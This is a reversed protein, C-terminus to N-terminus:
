GLNSSALSLRYPLRLRFLVRELPLSKGTSHFRHLPTCYTKNETDTLSIYLRGVQRATAPAPDIIEVGDGCIAKIQERLLPYHTCGLVLADIGAALMPDLIARLKSKVAGSEWDGAEILPVLGVCPDALIETSYAYETVLQQYRSGSLTLETAMVGIRGNRTHTAAPKVAPEMGVFSIDPYELRLTDIAVSTATNCAIVILGAGQALLFNTIQRSFNLVEEASRPGYPARANDAVYLLEAAPLLRRIQDVVTLGGVGSDFIGIKTNQM